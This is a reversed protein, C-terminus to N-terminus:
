DPPELEDLAALVDRRGDIIAAIIVTSLDAHLQYFVLHNRVVLIRYRGDFMRGLNPFACLKECASVIDEIYESASRPSEASIYDFIAQLHIEARERWILDAPM